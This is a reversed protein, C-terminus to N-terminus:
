VAAKESMRSLGEFYLDAQEAFSFDIISARITYINESLKEISIERNASIFPCNAAFEYIESITQGRSSRVEVSYISADSVKQHHTLVANRLRHNPIVVLEGIDNVLSSRSIGITQLVGKTFDTSVFDGASFQNEIKILIGAFVDKWYSWGFAVAVVTVILTIPTNYRFMLSYLFISYVIWFVIQIRSWLLVVMKKKEEVLSAVFRNFIRFVLILFVGALLLEVIRMLPTNFFYFM